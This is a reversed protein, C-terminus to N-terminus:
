KGRPQQGNGSGNDRNNGSRKGSESGKGKDKAQAAPWAPRAPKVVQKQMRQGFVQRQQAAHADFAQQEVAHQQRIAEAAPGAPRSRLDNAQDRALRAREANLDSDLKRQQVDRQRQLEATPIAQRRPTPAPAPAESAPTPRVSPRFYGVGGNGARQGLGRAPTNADVINVRPVPRKLTSEILKIDLGVNAPRGNRVEFRTADHARGILTVNRAVSTVQLRLSVDFVHARPVFSWQQSEITNAGSFALGSSPDWGATPPLPAWGVYDDDYQWAVWAPAWETGPVWAWGYSNDFFWRGYHYTAWGYPENSVWSWGYDSYEWHGDDYPRWDASVDYPTWCWGYSTDQFWEGYPSLSDYFYSVSVQGGPSRMSTPAGPQALGVAYWAVTLFLALCLPRAHRLQM